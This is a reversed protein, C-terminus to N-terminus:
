GCGDLNGRTDGGFHVVFSLGDDAGVRKELPVDIGAIEFLREPKQQTASTASEFQGLFALAAMFSVAVLKLRKVSQKNHM